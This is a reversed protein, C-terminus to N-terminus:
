RSKLCKTRAQHHPDRGEKNIEKKSISRETRTNEEEVSIPARAGLNPRFGRWTKKRESATIAGRMNGRDRLNETQNNGKHIMNFERDAEEVIVRNSDILKDSKVESPSLYAVQTNV